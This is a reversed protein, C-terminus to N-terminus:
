AAEKRPYRAILPNWEGGPIKRSIRSVCPTKCTYLFPYIPNIDAAQFLGRAIGQGRYASKVYVYHVLPRESVRLEDMWRGNKRVREMEEFGREFALWGHVDRKSEPDANPNAACILDVGPRALIQRIQNTMIPVWDRIAIIGSSYSARYSRLWSDVVLDVDTVVGKRYEISM